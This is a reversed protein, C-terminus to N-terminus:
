AKVCRYVREDNSMIDETIVFDKGAEAVFDVQQAFGGTQKFASFPVKSVDDYRLLSYKTGPTLNRWDVRVTLVLAMPKPRNDSHPVPEPREYNLNTSVVVPSLENNDDRVGTHAIGFNLNDPQKLDCPM